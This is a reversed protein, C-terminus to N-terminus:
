RIVVRKASPDCLYCRCSRLHKRGKETLGDPGLGNRRPPKAEVPKQRIPIVNSQAEVKEIFERKSAASCGPCPPIGRRIHQRYGDATGHAIWQPPLDVPLPPPNMREKRVQAEEEAVQKAALRCDACKSGYVATDHCRKCRDHEYVPRDRCTQCQRHIKPSHPRQPRKFDPYSEPPQLSKPLTKMLNSALSRIHTTSHESSSQGAQLHDLLDSASFCGKLSGLRFDKKAM